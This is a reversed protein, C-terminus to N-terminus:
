FELVNHILMLVEQMWMDRDSLESVTKWLMASNEYKAFLGVKVLSNTPLCRTSQVTCTCLRIASCQLSQNDGTDAIM